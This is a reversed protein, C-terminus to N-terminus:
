KKDAVVDRGIAHMLRAVGLRTDVSANVAAFRAQTLDTEADTLEVNTARGVRWLERRVRYSEEASVLQHATTEVNAFNERNTSWLQVVESRVALALNDRQVEIQKAQEATIRGLFVANALDNPSWSLTAGVDWAGDFREQAPVIRQNPNLYSANGVADLRPYMGARVVKAQEAVANRNEGLVKLELRTKLAEEVLATPDGTVEAIPPLPTRLDEGIQYGATQPPDGIAGALQDALVRAAMRFLEIESEGPPPPVRLWRYSIKNGGYDVRSDQFGSVGDVLSLCNVSVFEHSPRFKFNPHLERKRTAQKLVRDIPDRLGLEGLVNKAQQAIRECTAAPVDWVIHFEECHAVTTPYSSDFLLHGVTHVYRSNM